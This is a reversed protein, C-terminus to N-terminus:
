TARYPTGHSIPHHAIKSHKPIGRNPQNSLHRACARLLHGSPLLPADCDSNGCILLMVDPEEYLLVTPFRDEAKVTHTTKELRRTALSGQM